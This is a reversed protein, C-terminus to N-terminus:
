ASKKKGRRRRKTGDAYGGKLGDARQMHASAVCARFTGKSVFMAIMHRTADPDGFESTSHPCAPNVVMIHGARLAHVVGSAVHAFGGGRACEGVAVLVTLWVDEDCHTRNFFLHGCTVSPWLSVFADAVGLEAFMSAPVDCTAPFLMRVRPVVHKRLFTRLANQVQCAAIREEVERHMMSHAM